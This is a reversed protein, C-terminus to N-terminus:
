QSLQRLVNVMNEPTDSHRFLFRVDGNRDILYTYLSHDILPGAASEQNSVEYFGGYRRIVANISDRTGTLGIAPIDFHSLYIKLADPTDRDPDVSVFATLFDGGGLLHYVRAIRALTQPCFDPCHAYGFFLLIPRNQEALRFPEGDHDILVFDGGISLPEDSLRLDREPEGPPEAPRCAAFLLLAIFASVVLFSPFPLPSSSRHVLSLPLPSSPGRVVSWPFPLASLASIWRKFLSPIARPSLTM